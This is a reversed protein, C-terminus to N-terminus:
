FNPPGRKAPVYMLTVPDRVSLDYFSNWGDKDSLATERASQNIEGMSICCNMASSQAPMM